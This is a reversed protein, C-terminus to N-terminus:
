GMYRLALGKWYMLLLQKMDETSGCYYTVGFITVNM